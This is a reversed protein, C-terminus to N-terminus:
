AVRGAPDPEGAPRPRSPARASRRGHGHRRRRSVTRHVESRSPRRYISRPPRTSARYLQLADLRVRATVQGILTNRAIVFSLVSVFDDHEPPEMIARVAKESLLPAAAHARVLPHTGAGLAAQLQQIRARL